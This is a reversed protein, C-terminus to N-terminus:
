SARGVRPLSWGNELAEAPHATIHVHCDHCVSRWDETRLLAAGIRGRAHHVETARHGCRICTPNEILFLVRERTYVRLAAARKPSVRRM